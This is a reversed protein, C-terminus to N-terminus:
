KNCINYIALKLERDKAYELTTEKGYLKRLYYKEIISCIDKSNVKIANTVELEIRNDDFDILPNLINKVELNEKKTLELPISIDLIDNRRALIRYELSFGISEHLFYEMYGHCILQEFKIVLRTDTIEYNIADLEREKALLEGLHKNFYSKLSGVSLKNRRLNEIDNESVATKTKLMTIDGTLETNLKRLQNADFYKIEDRIEDRIENKIKNKIRNIIRM